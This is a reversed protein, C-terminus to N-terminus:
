LGAGPRWSVTVVNHGEIEKPLRRDIREDLLVERFSRGM